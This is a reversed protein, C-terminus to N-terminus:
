VKYVLKVESPHQMDFLFAVLKSQSDRYNLLCRLAYKVKERRNKPKLWISPCKFLNLGVYQPSYIEALIDFKSPRIKFNFRFQVYGKTVNVDDAVILKM